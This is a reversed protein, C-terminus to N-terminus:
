YFGVCSSINCLNKKRAILGKLLPSELGYNPIAINVLTANLLDKKGKKTPLQLEYDHCTKPDYKECMRIKANIKM